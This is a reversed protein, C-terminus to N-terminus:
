RVAGLVHRDGGVRNVIVHTDRPVAGRLLSLLEADKARDGDGEVVFVIEDGEYRTLVLREGHERAWASAIRNGDSRTNSLQVTHATTVALAGVVLVGAVGVIAYARRRRFAPPASARLGAVAGFVLTGVVVIALVNTLFLLLAGVSGSWDGDVATVGVVALPPVLSIAIAVGPLIDGIDRRSVAFAGALGTAAAAVLDVITPAVRATIQSNDAPAHLEPLIVAILAALLIVVAAAGAVLAASLALHRGEGGALAAGIGQIPTGLPAVIMAGIVTATSDGVIGATAIVASLVLLLWFRSQKAGVDGSFLFVAERIEEESRLEGALRPWRGAPPVEETSASASM